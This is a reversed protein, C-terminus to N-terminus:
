LSPARRGQRGQPGQHGQHGVDGGALWRRIPGARRGVGV